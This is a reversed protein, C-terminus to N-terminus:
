ETWERTVVYSGDRLEYRYHTWQSSGPNSQGATFHEPPPNGWQRELPTGDLMGGVCLLAAPYRESPLVVLDLGRDPGVSLGADTLVGTIDVSCLCEGTDMQPVPADLSTLLERLEDTTEVRQGDPLLVETCM